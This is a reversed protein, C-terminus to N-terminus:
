GAEVARRATDDATGEFNQNAPGCRQGIEFVWAEKAFWEHETRCIPCRVRAFFVPTYNFSLRDAFIGMHINRGTNTCKVMVAGISCELPVNLIASRELHRLTEIV